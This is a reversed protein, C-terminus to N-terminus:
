SKAGGELRWTLRKGLARAVTRLTAVTPNPIKGTELKSITARDLGTRESLHTLSLGQREREARLASLAELLDADPQAPPYERRIAEIDQALAAQYEPTRREARRAEGAAIQEPTLDANSLRKHRREDRDTM